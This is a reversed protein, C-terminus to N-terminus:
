APWYYPITPPMDPWLKGYHEPLKRVLNSQHSLHFEDKGLWTPPDASKNQLYIDRLNSVKEAVTDKYGREQWEHCIALTYTVLSLEYGRWM